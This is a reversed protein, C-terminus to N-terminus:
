QKMGQTSVGNIIQRRLLLFVIVMPVIVVASAAMLREYRVGGETIFNYLGITLTRKETTNTVLLPWLFANWSAIASLVSVTVLSPRNMPVVVRWLFAWSSAGDIRSAVRLTAPVKRFANTLILTSLISTTFPLIQAVLTDVLGWQVVTDYNVVVLVEFPVMMFAVALALLATKGAFDFFALAYAALVSTLLSLLVVSAAVIFTNLFYQDFRGTELAFAFNGFRLEAPLLQPPVTAIETPSKFASLLMWIFPFLMIASAAILAAHSVIRNLASERM